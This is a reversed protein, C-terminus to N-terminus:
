CTGSVYRNYDKETMFGVRLLINAINCNRCWVVVEDGRGEERYAKWAGVAARPLPIM